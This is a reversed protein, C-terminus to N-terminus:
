YYLYVGVIVLIKLGRLRKLGKLKEQWLGALEVEKIRRVSSRREVLEWAWNELSM